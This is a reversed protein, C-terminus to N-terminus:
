KGADGAINANALAERFAPYFHADLWEKAEDHCPAGAAACAGTRRCVKRPCHRYFECWEAALRKYWLLRAEHERRRQAHAAPHTEDIGEPLPQRDEHPPVVFHERGGEMIWPM